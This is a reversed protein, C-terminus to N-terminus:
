RGDKCNYKKLLKILEKVAIRDKVVAKEPNRLENESAPFRTIKTKYLTVADNTIRMVFSEMVTTEKKSPLFMIYDGDYNELGKNAINPFNSTPDHYVIKKVTAKANEIRVIAANPYIKVLKEFDVDKSFSTITGIFFLVVGIYLREFIPLAKFKM